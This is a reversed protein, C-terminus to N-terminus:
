LICTHYLKEVRNQKEITIRAEISIENDANPDTILTIDLNSQSNEEQNQRKLTAILDLRLLLSLAFLVDHIIMFFLWLQKTGICKYDEVIFAKISFFLKTFPVLLALTNYIVSTDLANYFDSISHIGGNM